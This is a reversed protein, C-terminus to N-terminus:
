HGAHQKWTRWLEASALGVAGVFDDCRGQLHEHFLAEGRSPQVVDGGTGADGLAGDIEVEGGLLIDEAGHHFRCHRRVDLEHPVQRLNGGGKCIAHPLKRRDGTGERRMRGYAANHFHDQGLGPIKRLQGADPM